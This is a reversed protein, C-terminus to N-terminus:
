KSFEYQVPIQLELQQVYVVDNQDEGNPILPTLRPKHIYDFSQFGHKNEELIFLNRMQRMIDQVYDRKTDVVTIMIIFDTSTVKGGIAKDETRVDFLQVSIRPYSERTLDIRPNEPYVFHYKYHMNTLITTSTTPANWFQVKGLIPSDKRFGVDFDAIYTQKTGDVTLSPIAMVKHRDKSDLDKTLEFITQTGNGTFTDTATETRSQRDTIKVRLFHVIEDLIIGMDLRAHIYANSLLTTTTTM